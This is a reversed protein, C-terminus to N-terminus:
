SLVSDLATAESRCLYEVLPRRFSHVHESTAAEVGKIDQDEIAQVLSRHEELSQEISRDLGEDFPRDYWFGDLRLAKVLLDAILRVMHGNHGARAIALHFEENTDILEKVDRGRAAAEYADRQRRIEELDQENRRKCALLATALQMFEFAELFSRVEELDLPPVRAGHNPLLEILGEAAMWMFAQRVPTRSLGLDEVVTREEIRRGAVLDMGLIRERLYEYVIHPGDGRRKAAGGPSKRQRLQIPTTMPKEIGGGPLM